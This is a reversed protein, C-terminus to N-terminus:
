GGARVSQTEVRARQREGPEVVSFSTPEGPEVVSFSTPEGPEVM